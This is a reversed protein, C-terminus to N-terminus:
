TMQSPVGLAAAIAKHAEVALQKPDDGPKPHVATLPVLQARIPGPHCALRWFSSLFSEDGWAIVEPQDYVIACLLYPMANEVAIEFAGHRFPQLARAPGIRGEPYLVIPPFRKTQGLQARAEARSQKDGRNVFVTEIAVGAWGIFPWARIEMASVFRMPLPTLMMLIDFYTIHNAFVLGEHRYFKEPEPCSFRINFVVMALRAVLTAIWASLRIGKLRVPILAAFIILLAGVAIVPFAIALRLVGLISRM